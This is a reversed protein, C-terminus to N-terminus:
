SIKRSAYIFQHVCVVFRESVCGPSIQQCVKKDDNRLATGKQPL